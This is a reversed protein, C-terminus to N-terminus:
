GLAVIAECSTQGALDIVQKLLDSLEFSLLCPMGATSCALADVGAGKEIVVERVLFGM